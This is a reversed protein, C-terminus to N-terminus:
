SSLPLSCYSGVLVPRGTPVLTYGDNFRSPISTCVTGKWVNGRSSRPKYNKEYEYKENLARLMDEGSPPMIEQRRQIREYLDELRMGGSVHELGEDDLEEQSATKLLKQVDSATADCDNDQLFAELTGSGAAKAFASRLDDNGQMEEFLESITKM